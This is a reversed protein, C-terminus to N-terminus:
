DPLWSRMPLTPDPFYRTVLKDAQCVTCRDSERHFRPKSALERSCTSAQNRWSLGLARAICDDCVAHPARQKLFESVERRIPM